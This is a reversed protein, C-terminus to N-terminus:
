IIQFYFKLVSPLIPGWLFWHFYFIRYQKTEALALAENESFLDFHTHADILM